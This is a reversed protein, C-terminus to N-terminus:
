RQSRGNNLGKKLSIWRSRIKLVGEDKDVKLGLGLGIGFIAAFQRFKQEVSLSRLEDREFCKIRELRRKFEGGWLKKTM